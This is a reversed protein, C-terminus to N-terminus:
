AALPRLLGRRPASSGNLEAIRVTLMRVLEATSHFPDAITEGTEVAAAARIEGSVEAVMLPGDPLQTSDRQALRFLAERDTLRADRITISGDGSGIKNENTHDIKYYM